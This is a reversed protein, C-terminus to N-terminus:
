DFSGLTKAAVKSTDNKIEPKAGEEKKCSSISIVSLAVLSLILKKM